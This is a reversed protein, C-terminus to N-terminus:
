LLIVESRIVQNDKMSYGGEKYLFNFIHPEYPLSANSGQQM